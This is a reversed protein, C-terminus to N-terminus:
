EFHHLKEQLNTWSLNRLFHLMGLFMFVYLCIDNQCLFVNKLGLKVRNYTKKVYLPITYVVGGGRNYIAYLCLFMFVYRAGGCLFPLMVAVAEERSASAVVVIVRPPLRVVVFTTPRPPPPPSPISIIAVLVAGGCALLAFVFVVDIRLFRVVDRPPPVIRRPVCPIICSRGRRRRRRPITVVIVIAVVFAAVVDVVIAVAVLVHAVGTVVSTSSSPLPNPLPLHRRPGGFFKVFFSPINNPIGRHVCLM